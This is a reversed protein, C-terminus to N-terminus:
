EAKVKEELFAKQKEADAKGPILKPKKYAFGLRHLLNVVGKTTYLIAFTEQIYSGM